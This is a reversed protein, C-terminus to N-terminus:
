ALYAGIAASAAIVVGIGVELRRETMLGAAAVRVPGTRDPTDAGRRNDALDNALNAAIQLLLAVGLCAVATDLRLSAGAGFAAGLGVFVPGVAAPLTAPRIAMLWVRAASPIAASRENTM